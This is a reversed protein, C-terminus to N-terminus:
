DTDIEKAVPPRVKFLVKAGTPPFEFNKLISIIVKNGSGWEKYEGM